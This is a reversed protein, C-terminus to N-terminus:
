FHGPSIPCDALNSKPTPRPDGEPYSLDNAVWIEANDGIARLTFERFGDGYLARVDGVELPGARLSNAVLASKDEKADALIKAEVAEETLSAYYADADVPISSGVAKPAASGASAIGVGAVLATILVAGVVLVLVRRQMHADSGRDGGTQDRTLLGFVM